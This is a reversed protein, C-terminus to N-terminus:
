GSSRSRAKRRTLVHVTLPIVPTTATVPASDATVAAPNAAGAAALVGTWDTGLIGPSAARTWDDRGVGETMTFTM